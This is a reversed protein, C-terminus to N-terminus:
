SKTEEISMKEIIQFHSTKSRGVGNQISESSVNDDVSCILQTIKISLPVLTYM